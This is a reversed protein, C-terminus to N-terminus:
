ESEIVLNSGIGTFSRRIYTSTVDWAHMRRDSWDWVMPFHDAKDVGQGKPYEAGLKDPNRFSVAFASHNGQRDLGATWGPYFWSNNLPLIQQDPRRQDVFSWGLDPVYVEVWNHNGCADSADGNPCQSPGLNWHPVGALRSPVGLLRLGTVLFVSMSTCSGNGREWTEEVGYSNLGNAKAAEFSIPPDRVAWIRENLALTICPIDECNSTSAIHDLYAILLSRKTEDVFPPETLVTFPAVDNLLLGEQSLLQDM